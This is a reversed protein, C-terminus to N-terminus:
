GFTNEISYTIYIFPDKETYPILQQLQNVNQNGTIITNNSSLFIAQHSQLKTRKRIIQIIEAGTVNTDVLYKNKDITPERTSYRDIIIPIKDSYKAKIKRYNEIRSEIPTSKMDKIFEM